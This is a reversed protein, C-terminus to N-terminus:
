EKKSDNRIISNAEQYLLEIDKPDKSHFGIEEGKDSLTKRPWIRRPSLTQSSASKQNIVQQDVEYNYVLFVIAVKNKGSLSRTLTSNLDAPKTSNEM